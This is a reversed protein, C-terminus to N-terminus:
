RDLLLQTFAGGVPNGMGTGMANMLRNVSRGTANGLDNRRAHNSARGDVWTGRNVAWRMRGLCVSAVLRNNLTKSQQSHLSHIGHRQAEM